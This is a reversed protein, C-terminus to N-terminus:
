QPGHNLSEQSTSKTVQASGADAGPQSGLPGRQPGSSAIRQVNHQSDSANSSLSVSHRLAQQSAQQQLQQQLQQQTMPMPQYQQQQQQQFWQQQQQYQSHQQPQQQYGSYLTNTMASAALSQGPAPVFTPQQLFISDGSLASAQLGACAPLCIQETHVTECVICAGGYVCDYSAFRQLPEQHLMM